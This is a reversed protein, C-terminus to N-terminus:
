PNSRITAMTKDYAKKLRAPVKIKGGMIAAGTEAFLEHRNTTAYSSVKYFDTHNNGYTLYEPDDAYQELINDLWTSTLKHRHELTHHFEHIAVNELANDVAEFTNHRKSIKWVQLERRVSEISHASLKADIMRNLTKEISEIQAARIREFGKIYDEKKKVHNMTFTKQFSVDDWSFDLGPLFENPKNIGFRSYVGLSKSRQKQWGIGGVKANYKGLTMDAARLIAAMDDAKIGPFQIGKYAKNYREAFALSGASRNDTTELYNELRTEGDKKSKQPKGREKQQKTYEEQQKTYETKTSRTTRTRCRGHYPPLAFHDPYDKPNMGIFKERVEKESHWPAVEKVTEPDKANIIADRTKIAKKVSIIKGNLEQCILSTRHDMIARVKLYEIRAAQYGGTRGFERTRNVVHNSLLDWYVRSRSFVKGLNKQFFAAATARDMGEELITEGIKAISESLHDDYHQGVWYMTNKKIWNIAKVDTLSFSTATGAIAKFENFYIEDVTQFTPNNMEGVIDTGLRSGLNTILEDIDAQIMPTGKYPGTRKIQRIVDAITEKTNVDWVTIMIDALKGAIKDYKDRRRKMIRIIEASYDVMKQLKTRRNWHDLAVKYRDGANPFEKRANPDAMFRAVFKKATDGAQPKPLPM